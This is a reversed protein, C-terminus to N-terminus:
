IQLINQATIVHPTDVRIGVSLIPRIEYRDGRRLATDITDPQNTAAIFM